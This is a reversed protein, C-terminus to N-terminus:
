RMEIGIAGGYPYDMVPVSSKGAIIQERTLPKASIIVRALCYYDQKRDESKRFLKRKTRYGGGKDGWTRFTNTIAKIQIYLEAPLTTNEKDDPYAGRINGRTDIWFAIYLTDMRASDAATYEYRINQAYTRGLQITKQPLVRTLAAPICTTDFLPQAIWQGQGSSDNFDPQRVERVCAAALTYDVKIYPLIPKKRVIITGAPVATTDEAVTVQNASVLTRVTTNQAALMNGFLFFLLAINRITHMM